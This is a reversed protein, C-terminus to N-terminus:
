VGSKRLLRPPNACCGLGSPFGRALNSPGPFIWAVFHVTLLLVDLLHCYIQSERRAKVNEESFVLM